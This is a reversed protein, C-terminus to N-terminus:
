LRVKLPFENIVPTGSGYVLAPVLQQLLLEIRQSGLNGSYEFILRHMIRGLLLTRELAGWDHM